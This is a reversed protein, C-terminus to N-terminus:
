LTTDYEPHVNPDIKAEHSLDYLSVQGGFVILRAELGHLTKTGFKDHYKKILLTFEGLTLDMEEAMQEETLDRSLLRILKKDADSLVIRNLM